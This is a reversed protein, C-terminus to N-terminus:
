LKNVECTDCDAGPPDEGEILDAFYGFRLRKQCRKAYCQLDHKTMDVNVSHNIASWNIDYMDSGDFDIGAQEVVGLLQHFVRLLPKRIELAKAQWQRVKEQKERFTQNRPCAISPDEALERLKEELVKLDELFYWVNRFCM